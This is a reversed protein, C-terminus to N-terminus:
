ASCGRRSTREVGGSCPRWSHITRKSGFSSAVSPFFFCISVLMVFRVEVRVSLDVFSGDGDDIATSTILSRSLSSPNCFRHFAHGMKYLSGSPELLGLRQHTYIPRVLHVVVPFLHENAKGKKVAM